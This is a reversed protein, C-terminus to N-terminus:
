NKLELKTKEKPTSKDKTKALKVLILSKLLKVNHEVNQTKTEEILGRM